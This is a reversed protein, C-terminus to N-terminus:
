HSQCTGWGCYQIVAHVTSVGQSSAESQHEGIITVLAKQM